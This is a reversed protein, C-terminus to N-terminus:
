RLAGKYRHLPLNLSPSLPKRIIYLRRGSADVLERLIKVGPAVWEVIALESPDLGNMLAVSLLHGRRSQHYLM